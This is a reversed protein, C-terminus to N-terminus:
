KPWRKMIRNMLLPSKPVFGDVATGPTGTKSFGPPASGSASPCSQTERYTLAAALRAEGPDGLLHDFDDGVSCGPLVEGPNSQNAASFGDTYDGFNKQNVGRFQITFYTTGCNEEAYFGYPKGCTTSGIQIVEVDVGRLGNMIAESASCTGPGTLVFVRQLDLTPLPQNAPAADFGSTTNYFPTPEIASGTVPNTSPHKDNFQTLEFTRGATPTNGAIMYALQSAIFLYGGGNYRIDLVLDNIGQGAKLQNVADVLAGEATIIHDNFVLYGVRGSTTELVSTELVPSSTVNAATMTISRVGGGLDMVTFVHPDGVAPAFLGENLTDIGAQTGDNIDVGDVELITAGRELLVNAAPSDPETYAVRIDRPPTSALVAWQAGYGASIGSQSLQYWEFSDYTFHFKDKPAGSSTTATTKLVDFYDLPNNYLAPDRDVIEAYWLYTDNAHSRLFYNEDLTTGQVDPYASGTAPDTGSRPAACRAAFTSKDLFVGQQWNGSQSGNGNEDDRGGGGCSGLAALTALLVTARLCTALILRPKRTAAPM